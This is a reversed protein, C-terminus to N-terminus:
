RLPCRGALTRWPALSGARQPGLSAVALASSLRAPRCRGDHRGLPLGLGLRLLGVSGPQVPREGLAGPLWGAPWRAAHLRVRPWRRRCCWVPPSSGTQRVIPLRLFCRRPLTGPRLQASGRVPVGVPWRPFQRSAAVIGQWRRVPVVALRRRDRGCPRARKRGVQTRPRGLPSCSGAKAIPLFPVAGVARGEVSPAWRPHPM